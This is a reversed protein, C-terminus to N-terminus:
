YPYKNKNSTFLNAGSFELNRTGTPNFYYGFAVTKLGQIIDGGIKGYKAEVINGKGDVKTRVRFIYRKEQNYSTKNRYMGDPQKEMAKFGTLESKYGTEPAEYPWKYESRDKKDPYYELIGDKQNSFTLKYSCNWEEWSKANQDSVSFVFIFDKVSGEGYPAVWDKKELDYGVPQDFVPIDKHGGTGGVYMPIPNRKEKLVVEITPNWPKWRGFSTETFSIRGGGGGYYGKKSVSSTVGETTKGSATFLGKKNTKGDVVSADAGWGQGHGKPVAFVVSVDADEIPAGKNDIVKLTIKATPHIFGAACFIPYLALLLLIVALRSRM